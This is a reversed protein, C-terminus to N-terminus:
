PRRLAQHRERAPDGGGQSRVREAAFGVEYVAVVHPHGLRALARGEDLLRQVSADSGARLVKVAVRRDLDPDYADYVTGMGGRGLRGLLTFRGIRTPSSARGLLAERAKALMLATDHDDDDRRLDHLRALLEAGSAAADHESAPGM